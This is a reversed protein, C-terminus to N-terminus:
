LNAADIGRRLYFVIDLALAARPHHRTSIPLTVPLVSVKSKSRRRLTEIGHGQSQGLIPNSPCRLNSSSSPMVAHACVQSHLYRRYHDDHVQRIAATFYNLAKRVNLGEMAFLLRSYDAESERVEGFWVSAIKLVESM